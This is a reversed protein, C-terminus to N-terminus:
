EETALIQEDIILQQQTAEQQTAPTAWDEVASRDVSARIATM